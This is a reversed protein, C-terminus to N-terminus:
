GQMEEHILHPCIQRKIPASPNQHLFRALPNKENRKSDGDDPCRAFFIIQNEFGLPYEFM